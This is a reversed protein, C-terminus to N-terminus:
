GTSKMSIRNSPGSYANLRHTKKKKRSIHPFDFAQVLDVFFFFHSAGSPAIDDHSCRALHPAVKRLDHRNQASTAGDAKAINAM